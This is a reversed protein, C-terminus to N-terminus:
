GGPCLAVEPRHMLHGWKADTEKKSAAFRAAEEMNRKHWAAHAARSDEIAQQRLPEPLGEVVDWNDLLDLGILCCASYHIEGAMSTTTDTRLITGGCAPCNSM